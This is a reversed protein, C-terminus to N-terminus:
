DANQEGLDHSRGSWKNPSVIESRQHGTLAGLVQRNIAASHSVSDTCRYSATYSRCQPNSVAKRVICYKAVIIYRWKTRAEM